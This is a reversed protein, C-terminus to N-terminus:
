GLSRCRHWPTGPLGIEHRSFDQHAAADFNDRLTQAAAASSFTAVVLAGTLTRVVRWSARLRVAAAARGALAATAVWVTEIDLADGSRALAYAQRLLARRREDAM